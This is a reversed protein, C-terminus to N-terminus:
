RGQRVEDDAAGPLLRVPHPHEALFHGSIVHEIKNLDIMSLCISRKSHPYVIFFLVGFLIMAGIM